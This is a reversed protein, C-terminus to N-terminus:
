RNTGGQAALLDFGLPAVPKSTNGLIIVATGKSRDLAIVSTFGGTEGDHWTVKDGTTGLPNTFWALGIDLKGASGLDAAPFRPDLVESPDIGLRKDNTLVARAYTALDAATSRLAGAPAYAGMAWAAEPRGASTAGLPDDGVANAADPLRTHDLGLPRLIRTTLLTAYDTHTAAALAQGLLAVGLNSYSFSGRHTLTAARAQTLLDALGAPYPDRARLTDVALDAIRGPTSAVPPLGSRHTALEELTVGAAPSNGLDLLTGVRTSLSVEHRDVAQALLLSTFTKTISGIEFNTTSDAGFGAFRTASGGRTDVVAIALCDYGSRDTHSDVFSAIERDGTTSRALVPPRPALLFGGVVVVVAVGVAALLRKRRRPEGLGALGKRAEATM